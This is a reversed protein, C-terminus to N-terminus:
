PTEKPATLLDDLDCICEVEFPTPDNGTLSAWAAIDQFSIPNISMGGTGRRKQLTLFWRWVHHISDPCEVEILEPPKVGTQLWASELQDKLTGGIPHVAGMLKENEAYELLAKKLGQYFKCCKGFVGPGPCM